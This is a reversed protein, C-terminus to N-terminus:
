EIMEMIAKLDECEGTGRNENAEYARIALLKLQGIEERLRKVEEALRMVERHFLPASKLLMINAEIEATTGEVDHRADTQCWKIDLGLPPKWGFSGYGRWAFADQTHAMSDHLAKQVHENIIDTNIM